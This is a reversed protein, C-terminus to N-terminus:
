YEPVVDEEPILEVGIVCAPRTPDFPLYVDVTERYTVGPTWLSTPHAGFLPWYPEISVPPFRSLRDAIALAFAYDRDLRKAASWYLTFRYTGPRAGEAPQFSAAALVIGENLTLRIRHVERPMQAHSVLRTYEQCDPAGKKFVLFDSQFFILGYDKNRLLETRWKLVPLIPRWNEKLDLLVYEAERPQGMFLLLDGQDVFHSAVRDTACLSASRPILRRLDKVLLDRQSPKFLNPNFSRSFPWYGFFYCSVLSTTLVFGSLATILPARLPLVHRANRARLQVRGLFGIADIAALFLLPILTSQNHSAISQLDARKGLLLFFATPVAAALAAPSLLPLLGLPVLLQLLFTLKRGTFALKAVEVPHQAVHRVFGPASGGVESYLYEIQWYPSGGKFHPIILYVSLFLWATGLVFVSAALRKRKLRFLIFLPVLAVALAVSENCMLALVTFIWFRALKGEVLFYFSALLLPISLAVPHFGYTYSFVLNSTTPVLLYAVSALFAPLAMRWRRWALLFVPLAGLSIAVSHMVHLTEHRPFVAFVPLLLLIIPVFHDGLVNGFPFTNSHLFRGRLTNSLAEAWVGSDTYGLNVAQHMRISLVSFLLANLTIAACCAILARCFKPPGVDTRPKALIVALFVVAGLCLIFLFRSYISPSGLSLYEPILVLLLYCPVFALSSSALVQRLDSGPRVASLRGILLWAIVALLAGVLCGLAAALVTLGTVPEVYRGYFPDFPAAHLISAAAGAIAGGAAVLLAAAWLPPSYRRFLGRKEPTLRHDEL